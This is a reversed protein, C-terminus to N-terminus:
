LVAGWLEKTAWLQGLLLTNEKKFPAMHILSNKVAVVINQIKVSTNTAPELLVM